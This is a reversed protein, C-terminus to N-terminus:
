CAKARFSSSRRSRGTVGPPASTRFPAGQLARHNRVTCNDYWATICGSLISEITCTDFITLTKPASGFKVLGRNRRVRWVILTPPGNLNDIIDVDPIKFSKVVKV